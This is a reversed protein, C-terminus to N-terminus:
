KMTSVFYFDHFIPPYKLDCTNKIPFHSCVVSFLVIAEKLAEETLNRYHYKLLVILHVPMLSMKYVRSSSLSNLVVM